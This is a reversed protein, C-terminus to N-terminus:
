NRGWSWEPKEGKKYCIWFLLIISLIMVGFFIGLDLNTPEANPSVKSAFYIGNLLLIGIFASIIVWGQWKAPVWGWGYLRRKFWVGEPNDKLYEAYNRFTYRKM